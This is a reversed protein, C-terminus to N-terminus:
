EYFGRAVYAMIFADRSCRGALIICISDLSPRAVIASRLDEAVLVDVEDERLVWFAGTDANVSDFPDQSM